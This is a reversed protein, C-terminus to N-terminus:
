LAAYAKRDAEGDWEDFMAFPDDIGAEAFRRLVVQGDVIEYVLTDGETLGLAVRVAKPITTQAKSTVRSTIM